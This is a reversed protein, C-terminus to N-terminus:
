VSSGPIYSLLDDEQCVPSVQGSSDCPLRQQLGPSGSRHDMQWSLSAGHPMSNAIDVSPFRLRSEELGRIRERLASTQNNAVQLLTASHAAADYQSICSTHAVSVEDTARDAEDQFVLARQRMEALHAETREKRASLQRHKEVMALHLTQVEERKNVVSRLEARVAHEQSARSAGMQMEPSTLLMSTESLFAELEELKQERLVSQTSVDDVEKSICNYRGVAIELKAEAKSAETIQSCQEAELKLDLLLKMNERHLPQLHNKIAALEDRTALKGRVSSNSRQNKQRLHTLRVDLSQAEERAIALRNLADTAKRQALAESREANQVEGHLRESYAELNECNAFEIGLEKELIPLLARSQSIEKRGTELMDSADRHQQALRGAEISMRHIESHMDQSSRPMQQSMLASSLASANEHMYEALTRRRDVNECECRAKVLLEARTKQVRESAALHRQLSSTEEDFRRRESQWTKEALLRGHEEDDLENKLASAVAELQRVESAENGLRTVLASYKQCLFRTGDDPSNDQHMPLM